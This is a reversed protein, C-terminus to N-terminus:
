ADPAFQVPEFRPDILNWQRTWYSRVADRGYVWGGEMGNPWEVEPHMAALIPEIDRRNFAAYVFTLLDRQPSLDNHIDQAGAVTM